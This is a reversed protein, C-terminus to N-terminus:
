SEDKGKPFPLLLALIFLVIMIIIVVANGKSVQVFGWQIYDTPKDLNGLIAAALVLVEQASPDPVPGDAM